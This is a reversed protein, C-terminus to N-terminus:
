LAKNNIKERCKEALKRPYAVEADFGRAALSDAIDCYVGYAKDFEGLEEYCGAMAYDADEWRSELEKARRWHFFADEYQEKARYLDGMYIHLLAEEPFKEEAKKAWLLATENEEAFAYAQILCVWEQIEDSGAEVLPLYRRIYVDDHGIEHLLYGKQRCTRWYIEPDAEKGKDLVRNFLEFAKEKCHFMMDQYLIGYLRLDNDTYEGSKLLRCFELDARIFDSPDLSSEFVGLLRQAYNEYAVSTEQYLDDITVGYLQAISPLMTVDPYTTACEWRSVSQASVGLIGAVQEQTLKKALRLRRLNKSFEM